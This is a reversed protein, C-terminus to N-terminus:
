AEINYLAKLKNLAARVGLRRSFRDKAYCEVRVTINQDGKVLHLETAGGFQSVANWIERHYQKREYESKVHPPPWDAFTRIYQDKLLNKRKDSRYHTVTLHYGQSKLNDLAPKNAPPRTTKM